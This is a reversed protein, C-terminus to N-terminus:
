EATTLIRLMTNAVPEGEVQVVRLALEGIHRTREPNGIMEGIAQAYDAPGLKGSWGLYAIAGTAAVDETTRAQNAAFVVTIAPLGLYCREWMAAGGAGVGVDASLILEAMNSVQCHFSVNPLADCLAHIADRKPNALGVVVDVDIDPRGLLRLAAMVKETENTPDSGGFFVLIRRVIGDRARLRQRARAFEPRLLVYGPGLLTVCQEPVLGLYRSDLDRYYNQDLLLDCDHSRNALDDIVMLKRSLPRLLREWEADLEYQDVVLWDVSGPFLQTLAEITARADDHQLRPSTAALDLRANRYGRADLLDFMGGPLDRCIFAVETGDGRLQDALTLCRMLHGSGIEVSADTRFVINHGRM